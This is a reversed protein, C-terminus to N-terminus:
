FSYITDRLKWISFSLLARPVVPVRIHVPSPTTEKLFTPRTQYRTDEQPFLLLDDRYCHHPHIEISLKFSRIIYVRCKRIYVRRSRRSDSNRSPPPARLHMLYELFNIGVLAAAACYCVYDVDDRDVAIIVNTYFHRPVIKHVLIEKPM